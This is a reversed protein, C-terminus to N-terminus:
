AVTPTATCSETSGGTPQPGSDNGEDASVQSGKVLVAGVSKCVVWQIETDGMAALAKESLAHLGSPRQSRPKEPWNPLRPEIDDICYCGLHYQVAVESLGQQLLDTSGTDFDKTQPNLRLGADILAASMEEPSPYHAWVKIVGGDASPFEIPTRHKYLRALDFM